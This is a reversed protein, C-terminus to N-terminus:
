WGDPVYGKPRDANLEFGADSLPQTAGGISAVRPVDKTDVKKPRDADPVPKDEAPGSLGAISNRSM